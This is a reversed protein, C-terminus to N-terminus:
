PGPPLERNLQMMTWGKGSAVIVHGRAQMQEVAPDCINAAEPSAIWRLYVTDYCLYTLTGDPERLPEFSVVDEPTAEVESTRFARGGTLAFALEPETHGANPYPAVITRGRYDTQLLRFLDAAVPPRVHAATSVVMPLLVIAGCILGSYRPALMRSLLTRLEFWVVGAAPAIIFISLPLVSGVFGDVFFGYLVASTAITGALAAVTVASVFRESGGGHHRALNRLALVSGAVALLLVGPNHTGTAVMSGLLAPGHLARGLVGSPADAEGTAGRRVYTVAVEQVFGDWGTYALVQVAFVLLSVGAGVGIAALLSASRRGHLLLALSAGTAGVFAAMGYDIQFVLFTAVGAWIPRRDRVALVLGFLIAFMWIRYTNVTWSLFGSFDFVVALLVVLLAPRWFAALLLAMSLGTGVLSLILVQTPLERIGARLLLYHLYRPGNPNHTYVFETTPRDPDTAAATLWGYQWPDWIELNRAHVYSLFTENSDLYYPFGASVVWSAVVFAMPALFIAARLVAVASLTRVHGLCAHLDAFWLRSWAAIARRSGLFGTGATVAV